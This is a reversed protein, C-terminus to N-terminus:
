KLSSGNEKKDKKEKEKKSHICLIPFYIILQYLYKKNRLQMMLNRLVGYIDANSVSSFGYKNIQYYFYVKTQRYSMKKNVFLWASKLVAM